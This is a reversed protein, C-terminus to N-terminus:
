FRENTAKSRTPLEDSIERERSCARLMGLNRLAKPAQDPHGTDIAQQYAAAAGDPDGRQKLLVGLDRSLGAGPRGRCPCLVPAAM